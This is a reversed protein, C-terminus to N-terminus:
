MQQNPEFDAAVSQLSSAFSMKPATQFETHHRCGPEMDGRGLHQKVEDGEDHDACTERRWSSPSANSAVQVSSKEM